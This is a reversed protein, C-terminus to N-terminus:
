DQHAPENAKLAIKEFDPGLLYPLGNPSTVLDWGKAHLEDLVQQM